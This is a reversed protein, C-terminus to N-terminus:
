TCGAAEVMRRKNEFYEGAVVRRKDEFDVLDVIRRRDAFNSGVVVKCDKLVMWKHVFNKRDEELRAVAKHHVAVFQTSKMGHRFGADPYMHLRVAGVIEEIDRVVQVKLSRGPFHDRMHIEVVEVV